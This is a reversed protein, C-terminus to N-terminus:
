RESAVAQPQGKAKLFSELAERSTHQFQFGTTQRLRETGAVWPYRIFDLGCAPSDRQLRLVWTFQTLPYIVGAPLMILKRGALKVVDSWQIIGNGAVNFVGPTPRQLLLVFLRALDDEHLFQMPPNSGRVGVLMPKFLAQTIFNRASPGMVVCGRLITVCTDPHEQAFRLFLKESEVKDEGYQFGKVPRPPCDEALPVPNDAHAGYVTTSSFYVLHKIGASACANLVNAAGGVNVRRVSERNHSPALAFALHVLAEVRHKALLPELPANIDQQHFTTKKGTASLPRADTAVVRKVWPLTELAAVLGRGVYGSAGTVAVVSAQAM